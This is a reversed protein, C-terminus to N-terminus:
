ADRFQQSAIAKRIQEEIDPRSVRQPAGGRILFVGGDADVIVLTENIAVATDQWAGRDFVVGRLRQMPANPDGSPFWVETTSEGTLWFQDGFVEVGNLGDPASEATAFDLPDVTTEGPPIWYFKGQYGDSQTPIVIVYSAVTAVDIAGVGDPMQVQYVQNTGGGTLTGGDVWSIAAGTETTVVSNFAAGVEIARIAMETSSYTIARVLTHATTATSYQSGAIGSDNIADHLNTWANIPAVGLAVLFPNAATGAPTGSDVSGNTFQYYVGGIRVVDGNAPTGAITNRAYGNAVYVLLTTGDAIYLYEPTEGIAAVIAMNVFGQDPNALGSYLLTPALDDSMRYLSDGSVVFLDGDFAGPESHLGRIPGNGVYTLLRMGPRALLTTGDDNLSPNQEFFRNKLVLSATDSVGRAFDTPNFSVRAM